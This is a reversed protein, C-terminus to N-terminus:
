RRGVVRRIAKEMIRYARTGPHHVLRTFVTGGPTDFVLVTARKPTIVHPRTGREIDSAQPANNTLRVRLGRPGREVKAQFGGHYKGTRRELEQGAIAQAERTSAAALRQFHQGVTGRPNRLLDDLQGPNLRISRSSEAM